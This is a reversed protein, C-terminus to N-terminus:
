LKARNKLEQKIEKFMEFQSELVKLVQSINEKTNQKIKDKVDEFTAQSYHCSNQAFMEKCIKILEDVEKNKILLELHQHLSNRFKIGIYEIM